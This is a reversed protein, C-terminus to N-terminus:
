LLSFPASVQIKKGSVKDTATAQIRYTGVLDTKDFGITVSANSLLLKGQLPPSAWLPGDGAPTIKGDPAVLAFAVTADCNGTRTPTCGHFIIMASIPAGRQVTNASQLSPPTTSRSWSTRFKKDDATLVIQVGFDGASKM